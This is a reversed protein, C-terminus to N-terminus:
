QLRVLRDHCNHKTGHPATTEGNLMKREVKPLLWKKRDNSAARNQLGGMMYGVCPLMHVSETCDLFGVCSERSRAHAERRRRERKTLM